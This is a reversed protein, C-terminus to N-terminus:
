IITVKSLNNRKSTHLSRGRGKGKRTKGQLLPLRRLYGVAQDESGASPPSSFPWALVLAGIHLGIGGLSPRKLSIDCSVLRSALASTSFRAPFHYRLLDQRQSGVAKRAAQGMGSVHIWPLLQAFSRATWGLWSTILGLKLFISM